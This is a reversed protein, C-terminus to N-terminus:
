SRVEVVRRPEVGTHRGERGAWAFATAFAGALSSCRGVPVDLADLVLYPTEPDSVYACADLLKDAVVAAALPRAGAPVRCLELLAGARPIAAEPDDVLGRCEDLSLYTATEHLELTPLASTAVLLRFLHPPADVPPPLDARRALTAAGITALSLRNM